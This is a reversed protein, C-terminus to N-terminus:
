RAKDRKPTEFFYTVHTRPSLYDHVDPSIETPRLSDRVSLEPAQQLDLVTAEHKPVSPDFILIKPRLPMGFNAAVVLGISDDSLRVLTGPPYVGMCRVFVSLYAIDFRHREHAYMHSLAEYPTMAQAPNKPNCHNDYSNVIAAIRALPAIEDGILLNPYGTGDFCEHHQNIIELAERSLGMKVGIAKGYACHQQMLIIEARTPSEAKQVRDPIQAKGVDHFLCGIGLQEIDGAPLGLEKALMMALVSVNLAHFYMEEGGAKDNMLHIAVDKDHLINVLIGQVLDTANERAQHPRAHIDANISRLSSAAQAFQKECAEIAARQQDIFEQREAIVQRKTGSEFMEASAARSADPVSSAGGGAIVAQRPPERYPEPVLVSRAPDIRIKKLGLARIKAIQGANRIKFSNLSFNHEVWRLDLHVYIGVDLDDVSVYYVDQM